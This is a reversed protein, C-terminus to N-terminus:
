YWSFAPIEAVRTPVSAGLSGFYHKSSGDSRHFVGPFTTLLKQIHTATKGCTELGLAM